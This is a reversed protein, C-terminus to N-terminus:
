HCFPSHSFHIKGRKPLRDHVFIKMKIFVQKSMSCKEQLQYETKRGLQSLNNTYIIQEEMHSFDINLFFINAVLTAFRVKKHISM